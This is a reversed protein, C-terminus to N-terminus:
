VLINLKRLLCNIRLPKHETEANFSSPLKSSTRSQKAGGRRQLRNLEDRLVRVDGPEVRPQNAFWDDLQPAAHDCWASGCSKSMFNDFFDRSEECLARNKRLWDLKKGETEVKNCINSNDLSNGM